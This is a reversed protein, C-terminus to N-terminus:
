QKYLIINRKIIQIAIYLVGILFPFWFPSSLFGTGPIAYLSYMIVGAVIFEYFNKFVFIGGLALVVSLWWPLMLVSILLLIDFLVRKM